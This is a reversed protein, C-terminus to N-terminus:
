IRTKSIAQSVAAVFPDAIVKKEGEADEVQEHL